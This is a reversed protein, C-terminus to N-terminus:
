YGVIDQRCICKYYEKRGADGLMDIADLINYKLVCTVEDVNPARDLAWEFEYIEDDNKVMPNLSNWKLYYITYLVTIIGPPSPMELASLVGGTTMVQKRARVIHDTYEWAPGGISEKTIDNWYISRKTTDYQRLMVYHGYEGLIDDMWRRLDLGHTSGPYLSTNVRPNSLQPYLLSKM